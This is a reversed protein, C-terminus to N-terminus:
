CYTHVCNKTHHTGSWLLNSVTENPVQTLVITLLLVDNFVRHKDSRIRKIAHFIDGSSHPISPRTPSQNRTENFVHNVHLQHGGASLVCEVASQSQPSAHGYKLTNEKVAKTSVAGGDGERKSYPCLKRHWCIKLERGRWPFLKTYGLWKMLFVCISTSSPQRRPHQVMYDPLNQGANWLHKNSGDHPRTLTKARIISATLV